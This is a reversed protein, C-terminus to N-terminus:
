DTENREEKIMLKTVSLMYSHFSQTLIRLEEATTFEYPHEFFFHGIVLNLKTQAKQVERDRENVQM